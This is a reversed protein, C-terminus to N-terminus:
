ALPEQPSTFVMSLFSSPLPLSLLPRHEPRRSTRVRVAVGGEERGTWAARNGFMECDWGERGEYDEGLLDDRFASQLRAEHCINTSDVELGWETGTDEPDVDHHFCQDNGLVDAENNLM